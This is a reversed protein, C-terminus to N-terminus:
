RKVKKKELIGIGTIREIAALVVAVRFIIQNARGIAVSKGIAKGGVTLAAIFSTMLAGLLATNALSINEILRVVIAAGIAGSLTGAVDGIVDNCFNAVLSANSIIRVAQSAGFVKKAARANFPPLEAATAATGIIDFFIGLLIILILMLLAFFVSKIMQMFLESGIGVLLAIFFTFFAVMLGSFLDSKKLYKFLNFM